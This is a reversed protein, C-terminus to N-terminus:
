IPSPPNLAFTISTTILATSANSLAPPTQDPSHVYTRSTCLPVKSRKGLIQSQQRYRLNLESKKESQIPEKRLSLSLSLSLSSLWTNLAVLARGSGVYDERYHHVLSYRGRNHACVSSQSPTLGIPSIVSSLCAWSSSLSSWFAM